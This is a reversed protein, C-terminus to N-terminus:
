QNEIPLWVQARLGGEPRNKLEIKGHHRDIIRKVIALGLGSGVSGRASDGQTFPQFLKEIEAENIGPGNDEIIFSVGKATQYSSIKILGNGYRFGNEVLNSLVRKIAVSQFPVLPCDQLNLEINGERHMEQQNIEQILRNIDNLERASEQDHRVYAIFQNIIDDMDEIDTVIGDKLYQDEDVMMESALRIRTLPTRLDHSIGAMLLARDQELQKMSHSMQNFAHTVEVIESSGSLPLPEPFEGKSVSFAARQLRKLPRNLRRAFWWGGAVSLAGIVLLYLTLPSLDNENLGTLPVKIWLTPAQPPRIWVQLQKGQSFRVEAEGGLYESMQESLFGYYTASELGAAIANQQNYVKMEDDRVKANLADVVTLNERTIVVGDIFLLNIQRAILQNIQEYSPKIFYVTVSLYSVLQNILLLSGILLVTQSFSNRPLFRQWWKLKM